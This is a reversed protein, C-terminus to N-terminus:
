TAIQKALLVLSQGQYLMQKSEQYHICAMRLLNSTTCKTEVTSDHSKESLVRAWLKVTKHLSKM